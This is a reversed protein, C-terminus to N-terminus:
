KLIGEDCTVMLFAKTTVKCILICNIVAPKASKNSCVMGLVAFKVHVGPSTVPQNTVKITYSSEAEISSLKLKIVVPM